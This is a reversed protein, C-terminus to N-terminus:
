GIQVVASADSYQSSLVAICNSFWDELQPFPFILYMMYYSGCYHYYKLLIFTQIVSFFSFSFYMVTVLYTPLYTPMVESSDKCAMIILTMDSMLRSSNKRNCLLTPCLSM